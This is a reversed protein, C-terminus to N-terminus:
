LEGELLGASLGASFFSSPLLGAEDLPPEESPDPEDLPPEDLPPEDLPPEDSPPEDPDEPPVLEAL